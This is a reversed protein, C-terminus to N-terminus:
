VFLGGFPLKGTNKLHLWSSSPTDKINMNHGNYGVYGLTVHLSTFAYSLLLLESYRVNPVPLHHMAVTSYNWWSSSARGNAGWSRYSESVSWQVACDRTRVLTVPVASILLYHPSSSIPLFVLGAVFLMSRVSLTKHWWSQMGLEM